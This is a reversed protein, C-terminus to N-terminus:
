NNMKKGEIQDQNNQLAMCYFGLIGEVFIGSPRSEGGLSINKRLALVSYVLCRVLTVYCM